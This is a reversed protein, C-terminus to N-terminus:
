IYIILSKSNIYSIERILILVEILFKTPLKLSAANKNGGKKWQQVLGDGEM